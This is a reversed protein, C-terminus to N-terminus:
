SLQGENKIFHLFDDYGVEVTVVLSIIPSVTNQLSHIHNNIYWINWPLTSAELFLVNTEIKAWRDLSM